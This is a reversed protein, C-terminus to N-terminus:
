EKKGYPVRQDTIGMLYDVSTNHIDAIGCLVKLPIRVAGREYRSYSSLSIRLLEAMKRQTLHREERLERIRKFQM